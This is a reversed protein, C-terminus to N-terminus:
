LVMLLTLVKSGRSSSGLKSRDSSKKREHEEEDNQGQLKMLCSCNKTLVISEPISVGDTWKIDHGEM